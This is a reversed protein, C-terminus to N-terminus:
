QAPLHKNLFGRLAKWYEDGDKSVLATAGHRGRGEPVFGTVDVKIKPMFSQWQKAEGRAATLFVPVTIGPLTKTVFKPESFYEGPSFAIVADAFSRERGALVLVLSASYSSGIVGVREVDLNKRVWVSAAALDPAAKGYSQDGGYRTATENKIGNFKGGSRQDVALTAYGMENLIPAIDRYEGRSAGAMHFLIIAAKAEKGPPLQLDATVTLNGTAQFTVKEAFAPVLGSIFFVIAIIFRM